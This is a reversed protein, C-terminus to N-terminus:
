RPRQHINKDNTRQIQYQTIIKQNNTSDYIAAYDIQENLLM